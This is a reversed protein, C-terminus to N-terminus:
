HVVRAAVARVVYGFGSGLACSFFAVVIIAAAAMASTQEHVDEPTVQMLTNSPM